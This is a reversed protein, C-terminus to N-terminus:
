PTLGEEQQKSQFAQTNLVSSVTTEGDFAPTLTEQMLTQWAEWQVPPPTPKGTQIAKLFTAQNANLPVDTRAPTILGSHAFLTQAQKSTLFKALAVAQKPHVSTASVCYGSGDVGVVSGAPGAPLPFIQWQFPAQQQLVPLIWRGSIIAVLKQQLFLETMSTNGVETALPALHYQTRLQQYFTLGQVASANPLFNSAAQQPTQPLTGGWSFIFPLWFLAPKTYFSIGWHPAAKSALPPHKVAAQLLPIAEQQWRWNPTPPKLGAQKLWDTNLYLVLVSVDRPLAFLHNNITFTELSQPMFAQKETPTLTSELSLLQNAHTFLPLTLNNMLLVDPSQNTAMLLQLKSMYQDPTHLLKVRITPHQQEFTKILQQTTAVEEANGWISLTLTILNNRPSVPTYLTHSIEWWLAMGVLLVCALPLGYQKFVSHILRLSPPMLPMLLEIIYLSEPRLM